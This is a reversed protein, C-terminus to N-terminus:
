SAALVTVAYVDMADRYFEALGPERDDYHARFEPHDVYLQGLGAFADADPTWFRAVWSYHERMLQQVADDAPAAGARLQDAMASELREGTAMVEAAEERSMRGVRRHSEDIQEQVGEGYREVLEREYREQRVPDFGDFLEEPRM